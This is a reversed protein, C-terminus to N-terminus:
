EILDDRKKPFVFKMGLEIIIYSFVFIIIFEALGNKFLLIIKSFIFISIYSYRINDKSKSQNYIKSLCVGFLFSVFVSFYGFTYYLDGTYFLSLNSDLGTKIQMYETLPTLKSAYISRPIFSTLVYIVNRLYPMKSNEFFKYMSLMTPYGTASSGYLIQFPSRIQFLNDLRNGNQLQTFYVRSYWLVIVFLLSFSLTKIIKKLMQKNFYKEHNQQNLVYIVVILIYIIADIIERRQGTPVVSMLIVAMYFIISPKIKHYRISDRCIRLNFMLRSIAFSICKIYSSSYVTKSSPSFFLLLNGEYNSISKLIILLWVILLFLQLILYRNSLFKIKARQKSEFLNMHNKNAIKVNFGLYFCLIILFCIVNMKTIIYNSTTMGFEYVIKYTYNFYYKKLYIDWFVPVYLIIYMLVFYSSFNLYDKQLKRIADVLLIIQLFLLAINISYYM